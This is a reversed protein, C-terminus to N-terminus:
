CRRRRMMVMKLLVGEVLAVRRGRGRGVEGAECSSVVRRDSRLVGVRVERITGRESSM